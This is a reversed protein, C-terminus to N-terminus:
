FRVKCSCILAYSQTYRNRLNLLSYKKILIIKFFMAIEPENKRFQKIKELSGDTYGVKNLKFRSLQLSFITKSDAATRLVTKLFLDSFLKLTSKHSYNMPLEFWLKRNLNCNKHYKFVNTLICVFFNNQKQCSICSKTGYILKEFRGESTKQFEIM